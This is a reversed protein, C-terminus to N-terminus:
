YCVCALRYYHFFEVKRYEPPALLSRKRQVKRNPNPRFAVSLTENTGLSTNQEPSTCRSNSRSVINLRSPSRTRPTMCSFIDYNPDRQSRARFQELQRYYNLLCQSTLNLHPDVPLYSRGRLASEVREGFRLLVKLYTTYGNAQLGGFTYEGAYGFVTRASERLSACNNRLTEFQSERITRHQVIYDLSSELQSLEELNAM